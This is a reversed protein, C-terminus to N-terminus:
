PPCLARETETLPEYRECVGNPTPERVVGGCLVCKYTGNARRQWVHLARNLRKQGVFQITEM